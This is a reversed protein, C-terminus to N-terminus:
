LCGVGTWVRVRMGCVCVCVDVFWRGCTETALRRTRHTLGAQHTQVRRARAGSRERERHNFGYESAATEVQPEQLQCVPDLLWPDRCTLGRNVCRGVGETHGELGWYVGEGRTRGVRGWPSGWMGGGGSRGVHGQIQGGCGRGTDEGYVGGGSGGWVCGRGSDAGCAWSDAGCAHASGM